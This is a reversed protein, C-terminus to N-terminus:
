KNFFQNITGAWGLVKKANDMTAWNQVDLGSPKPGSPKASSVKPPSSKQSAKAPGFPIPSAPKPWHTPVQPQSQVPQSTTGSGIFGRRRAGSHVMNALQRVKEDSAVDFALGGFKILSNLQVGSVELVRLHDRMWRIRSPIHHLPPCGIAQLLVFRTAPRTTPM